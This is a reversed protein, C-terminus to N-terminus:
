MSASVRVGVQEPGDAAAAAVEADGRAELEPQVREVLDHAAHQDQRRRGLHDGPEDGGRIGRRFLQGGDGVQHHRRRHREQRDFRVALGDDHGQQAIRRPRPRRVRARAKRANAVGSASM